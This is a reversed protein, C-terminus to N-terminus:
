IAELKYHSIRKCRKLMSEFNPHLIGSRLEKLMLEFTSQSLEIDTYESYGGDTIEVLNFTWSYKEISFITDHIIFVRGNESKIVTM